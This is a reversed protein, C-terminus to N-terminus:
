LDQLHKNPTRERLHRENEAAQRRARVSMVLLFVAVLGLALVEWREWRRYYFQMAYDVLRNVIRDITM